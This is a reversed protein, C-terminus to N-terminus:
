ILKEYLENAQNLEFEDIKSTDIGAAGLMVKGKEITSIIIEGGSLVDANAAIPVIALVSDDNFTIVVKEM